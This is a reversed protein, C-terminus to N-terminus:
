SELEAIAKLIFNRSLIAFPYTIIPHFGEERKLRRTTEGRMSIQFFFELFLPASLALTPPEIYGAEDVFHM